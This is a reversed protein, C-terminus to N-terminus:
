LRVVPRYKKNQPRGAPNLDILGRDFHIQSPDLDLIAEPRAATNLALLVYRFVHESRETQLSDLFRALEDDSPIWERPQPESVGQHVAITKGCTSVPPVAGKMGHRLAASLVSANRSTYAPSHGLNKSWEWFRRQSQETVDSVRATEGWCSLIHRGAYRAAAASAKKDTIDAFYAALVASLYSNESKPSPPAVSRIDLVLARSDRRHFVCELAAPGLDIKRHECGIREPVLDGCFEGSAAYRALDQATLQAM